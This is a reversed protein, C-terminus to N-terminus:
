GIWTKVDYIRPNNTENSPVCVKLESPTGAIIMMKATFADTETVYMCSQYNISNPQIEAPIDAIKTYQNNPFKTKDLIVNILRFTVINGVKKGYIKAQTPNTTINEVLPCEIWGTDYLSPKPESYSKDEITDIMLMPKFLIDNVTNGQRVVCAIQVEIDDSATYTAYGVSETDVLLQRPNAQIIQFSAGNSWDSLGDSIRYTIGKKLIMNKFEFYAHGSATGSAKVSGDDLVEFYIGNNNTGGKAILLNKGNSVENLEKQLLNDRSKLENINEDITTEEVNQNAGSLIVGTTRPINKIVKYLIGNYWFYDGVTYDKDNDFNSAITSMNVLSLDKNTKNGKLTVGNIKPLTNEELKNYDKTGDSVEVEFYTTMIKNYEKAM